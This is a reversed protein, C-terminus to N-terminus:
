ADQYRLWLWSCAATFAEVALHVLRVLIAALLGHAPSLMIGLVTALVLERVGAGGPLLSAFGTVIALSIAATSIAYLQFISPLTDNIPIALVVLTFSLGILVWTSLQLLWGTFFLGWSLRNFQDSNAAANTRDAPATPSDQQLSDVPRDLGDPSQPHEIRITEGSTAEVSVTQSSPEHADKRQLLKQSFWTMIPPFTPLSSVLAAIASLGTIWKPLPLWIVVLTAIAGGVAMMMLTEMFICVTADRLPVGARGLVGARLIVVLAKGPVYKGVHGLLHAAISTSLKPRHGFRTVSLHLLVAAPVLGLAYTLSALLIHSWDLNGFSPLTRLLVRRKDELQKRQDSDATESLSREIEDISAQVTQRQAEWQVTAKKLSFILGIVVAVFITTKIIRKLTSNM